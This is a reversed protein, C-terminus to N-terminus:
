IMSFLILELEDESLLIQYTSRNRQELKIKLKAYIKDIMEDTYHRITVLVQDTNYKLVYHKMLDKKLADFHAYNEDVCLSFSIASNQILNIHYHHKSLLQFILGMNEVNMFSFDRPTLSLLVQRKKVIVSTQSTNSGSSESVRTGANNLNYFSRVKLVIGKEQLPRITKPHIISAGYFALEVAEKYSLSEMLKVNNFLKPDANYVGDVDKWIILEDVDLASAFIAASYDSGERGLTTTDGNKNSAIFGQTLCITNKSNLKQRIATATNIMDVKASRHMSNTLILQRADIFKCPFGEEILYKSVITSSLIEGQSIIQDYYYDFTELKAPKLLTQLHNFITELDHFISHKAPFLEKCIDKHYEQVEDLYKVWSQLECQLKLVAELANTTKGMASVVIILGSHHDMSLIKAINKVGTADKVSAGGFKYVKMGNRKQM